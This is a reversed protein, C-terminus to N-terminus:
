RKGAMYGGLVGAIASAIGIALQQAWTRTAPDTAFVAAAVSGFLLALVGVVVVCFTAMERIRRYQNDKREEALQHDLRQQEIKRQHEATAVRIQVDAWEVSQVGVVTNGVELSSTASFAVEGEVIRGEGETM